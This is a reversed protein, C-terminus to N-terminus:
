AAAPGPPAPTAIAGTRRAFRLALLLAVGLLAAALLIPLGPLGPVRRLTLAFSLAFVPGLISAIGGTSQNAGQLRGQESGSVRPTM